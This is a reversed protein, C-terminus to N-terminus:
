VNRYKAFVAIGATAVVFNFVTAGVLVESPMGDTVMSLVRALGLVTLALPALIATAFRLKEVFAGLVILIGISLFGGGSARVNNLLTPDSDPLTAGDQAYLFVPAFTILAGFVLFVAGVLILYANLVKSPKV